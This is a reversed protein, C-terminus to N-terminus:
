VVVIIGKQSARCGRFVHVIRCGSSLYMDFVLGLIQLDICGKEKQWLHSNPAKQYLIVFTYKEQLYRAMYIM